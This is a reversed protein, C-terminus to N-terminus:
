LLRFVLNKHSPAGGWSFNSVCVSTVGALDAAACALPVVDSVVLDTGREALWSSEAQLKAERGEVAIRAYEELSEAAPDQGECRGRLSFELRDDLLLQMNCKHLVKSLDSELSALSASAIEKLDTKLSAVVLM